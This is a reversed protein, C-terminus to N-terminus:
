EDTLYEAVMDYVEEKKKTRVAFTGFFFLEGDFNKVLKAEILDGEKLSYDMDSDTVDYELKTLIDRLRFTKGRQSVVEFYGLIVNSINELFLEERQGLELTQKILQPITKGDQLTYECFLWGTFYDQYKYFDLELETEFDEVLVSMLKPFREQLRDVVNRLVRMEEELMKIM